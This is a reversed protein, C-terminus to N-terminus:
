RLTTLEQLLDPASCLIKSYISPCVVCFDSSLIQMLVGVGFEPPRKGRGGGHDVGMVAPSSKIINICKYNQRNLQSICTVHM